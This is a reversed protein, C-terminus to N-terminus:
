TFEKVETHRNGRGPRTRIWRRDQRGCRSRGKSEEGKRATKLLPESM